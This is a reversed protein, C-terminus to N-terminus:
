PEKKSYNQNKRVKSCSIFFPKNKWNKKIKPINPFKESNYIVCYFPMGQESNLYSDYHLSIIKHARRLNIRTKLQNKSNKGVEYINTPFEIIKWFVLLYDSYDANFGCYPTMGRYDDDLVVIYIIQIFDELMDMTTCVKPLVNIRNIKSDIFCM